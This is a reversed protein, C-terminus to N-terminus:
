FRYFKHRCARCRFPQIFFLRLFEEWMGTRAARRVNSSTCKPCYANPVRGDEIFRDQAHTLERQGHAAATSELQPPLHPAPPPLRFGPVADGLVKELNTVVYSVKQESSKSTDRLRGITDTQLVSIEELQSIRGDLQSTLVKTSEEVVREGMDRFGSVLKSELKEMQEGVREEILGPLDEKFSRERERLRAIEAARAREALLERLPNSARGPLNRSRRM